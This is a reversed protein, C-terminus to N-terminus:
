LKLQEETVITREKISNQQFEQVSILKKYTSIIEDEPIDLFELIGLATEMDMKFFAMKDELLEKITEIKEEDLSAIPQKKEVLKKIENIM